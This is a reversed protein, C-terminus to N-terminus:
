KNRDLSKELIQALHSAFRAPDPLSEGAAIRAQDLFLNAVANFHDQSMSGSTAILNKIVTHEPNIELIRPLESNLSGHANLMQALRVDIDLDDAVLCSISDTLRGSVRVDKVSDGLENNISELLKKMEEPIQNEENDESDDSNENNLNVQGRTISRFDKGDYTVVEQIWFEDIPDTLLLVEISKAKFSELHPSNRAFELEEASLYYIVEQNEQMREVYQKLTVQSDSDYTSNFLSLNLLDDRRDPDHYIGEKLVAGFNSWFEAYKSPEDQSQKQLTRVVHRVLGRQIRVVLPSDQLTDRSINLPLDESDVVGRLFRLYSPLLDEYEDTIFVRRVYLRVGRRGNPDMIDLPRMTPIFLLATYALRGETSFHMTYAPQDFSHSVYRYFEEYQSDDIEKTPRTWIASAENLQEPQEDTDLMIPLAIHDAYERVITRLRLPERFERADERLHLSIKTGRLPASDDEEISFGDGGESTWRWGKREGAKRTSVEVHDAVMFVSYFGVGFQGILSSDTESNKELANAFAATGSRAITGLNEILDDRNMGIGNDTISISRTRKDLSITVALETDTGLIKQDTLSLFKLRECADSANSILERLFIQRDAYLSRAVLELLRSVEANFNLTEQAM